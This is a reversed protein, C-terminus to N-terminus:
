KNITKIIVDDYGKSIWKFKEIEAEVLTDFYNPTGGIWVIYRINDM